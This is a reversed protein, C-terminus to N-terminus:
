PLVPSSARASLFEAYSRLLEQAPDSLTLYFVRADHTASRRLVIGQEIFRGVRRQMSAIPEIGSWYLKECAIGNNGNVQHMGIFALVDRDQISKMWPLHAQEYERMSKLLLLGSDVCRPAEVKRRAATVHVNARSGWAFTARVRSDM